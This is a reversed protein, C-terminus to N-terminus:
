NVWSFIATGIILIIIGFFRYTQDTTKTLYWDLMKNYLNVPSFLIFAGKILALVGIVVIVWLFRDYFSSAILLLGIIIVLVSLIRRDVKKVLISTYERSQSTYLIFCVGLVIYFISIAYLFWKMIDDGM